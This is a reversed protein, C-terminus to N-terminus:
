WDWVSYAINVHLACDLYIYRNAMQRFGKICNCPKRNNGRCPSGELFYRKGQGFM